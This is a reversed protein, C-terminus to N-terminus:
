ADGAPVTPRGSAIWAQIGGDLDTAQLGLERLTAAALSSAFGENCVVIVPRDSSTEPIRHPSAPDLRWELVNRDIVMSGAIEGDARRQPVPRIDVILAGAARAAELGGPDPRQGLHSRAEDLLEDVSRPMALHDIM